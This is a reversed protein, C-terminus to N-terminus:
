FGHASWVVFFYRPPNSESLIAIMPGIELAM